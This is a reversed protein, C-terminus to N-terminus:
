LSSCRKIEQASFSTTEVSCITNRPMGSQTTNGNTGPAMRICIDPHGGSCILSVWASPEEQSWLFRRVDINVYQGNPWESVDQSCKMLLVADLALCCKVIFCTLWLWVLKLTNWVESHDAGKELSRHQMITMSRPWKLAFECHYSGFRSPYHLPLLPVPLHWGLNLQPAMQWVLLPNPMGSRSWWLLTVFPYNKKCLRPLTLILSCKGLIVLTSASTKWPLDRPEHLKHAFKLLMSHNQHKLPRVGPEGYEKQQCVHEWAIFCKSGDCKEEGTWLCWTPQRGPHRVGRKSPYPQM